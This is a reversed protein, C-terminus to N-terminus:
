RDRTGWFYEIEPALGTGSVVGSLESGGAIEAVSCYFAELIIIVVRLEGGQKEISSGGPEAELFVEVGELIQVVKLTRCLKAIEISALLTLGDKQSALDVICKTM